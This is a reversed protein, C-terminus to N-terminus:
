TFTALEHTASETTRVIFLGPIKHNFTSIIKEMWIHRQVMPVVWIVRPFVNNELQEKGSLYYDLYTQLKTTIAKKHSTARDIEIFWSLETNRLQLHIRLDPKLITSKGTLTNFPRWCSPETEIHSIYWDKNRSYSVIDCYIDGIALTHDLFLLGPEYRHHRRHNNELSRFGRTTLAYTRPISTIRMGGIQREPQYLYKAKMLHYLTRNCARGASLISPHNYFYLRQIQQATMLRFQYITQLITIDLQCLGQKTLSDRVIDTTSIHKM